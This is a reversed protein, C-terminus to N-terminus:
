SRDPANWTSGDSALVSSVRCSADSSGASNGAFVTLTREFAADPAFTGRSVITQTSGQYRVVVVVVAAPIRGVNKLRLDVGTVIDQRLGNFPDQLVSRSVISCREVVIPPGSAGDNSRIQAQAPSISGIAAILASVAIPNPHLHFM